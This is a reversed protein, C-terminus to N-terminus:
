LCAGLDFILFALAQEQPSLDLSNCGSPFPAVDDGAATLLETATVRGCVEADFGHPLDVSFTQVTAPSDGFLLRVAPASM